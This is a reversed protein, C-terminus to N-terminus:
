GSEAPLYCLPPLEYYFRGRYRRHEARDSGEPSSTGLRVIDYLYM